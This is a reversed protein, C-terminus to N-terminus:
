NGIQGTKRGLSIQQQQKARNTDMDCQNRVNLNASINASIEGSFLLTLSLDYLDESNLQLLDLLRRAGSKEWSVVKAGFQKLYSKIHNMSIQAANLLSCHSHTQLGPRLQEISTKDNIIKSRQVGEASSKVRKARDDGMWPRM